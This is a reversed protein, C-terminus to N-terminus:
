AAGRQRRRLLVYVAGTGGHAPQASCFALVADWQRLWGNVKGKLVPVRGESSHGKGHIVRVCRLGRHQAASLFDALAARAEDVRLGHLDLEAELAIKGTRLRKMVSMQIGPRRYLLEEGTEIESTDAEDSLLSDMVAQNDELTKQPSPRPRTPTPTMRNHALPRVDAFAELFATSNDKEREDESM